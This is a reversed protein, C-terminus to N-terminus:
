EFNLLPCPLLISLTALRNLIWKQFQHVWYKQSSTMLNLKSLGGQSQPLMTQIRTWFRVEESVVEFIIILLCLIIFSNSNAAPSHKTFQLYSPTGFRSERYIFRSGIFSQFIWALQRINSYLESIRTWSIWVEINPTPTNAIVIRYSLFYFKSRLFSYVLFWSWIYRAVRNPQSTSNLIIISFLVSTKSIFIKWVPFLHITVKRPVWERNLM